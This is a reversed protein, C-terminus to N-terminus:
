KKPYGTIKQIQSYLPALAKYMKQYVLSYLQRYIMVNQPDPEFVTKVRVMNAVAEDIGSYLGVGKATLIAAGLGSTEHTEGKVMPLNFIDATIKCIEDSQSAGGSVAAKEVLIKGKKQIKEMGEFLAFGLGEIVARYVHDKTHVDGFGIMAGKADPHDM